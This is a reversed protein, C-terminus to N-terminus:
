RYNNGYRREFAQCLWRAGENHDAEQADPPYSVVLLRDTVYTLRFRHKGVSALEASLSYALPSHGFEERPRFYEPQDSGPPTPESPMHVVLPVQPPATAAASPVSTPPGYFASQPPHAFPSPAHATTPVAGPGFSPLTPGMSVPRQSPYPGVWASPLIQDDLFGYQAL